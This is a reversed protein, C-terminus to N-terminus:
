RKCPFLHKNACCLGMHHYNPYIFLHFFIMYRVSAMYLRLEYTLLWYDVM